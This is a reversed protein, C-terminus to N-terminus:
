REVAAIAGVVREKFRTLTAVQDALRDREVVLEEVRRRLQEDAQTRRVARVEARAQASLGCYRCPEGNQDDALVGSTCAGCGPCEAKDSV